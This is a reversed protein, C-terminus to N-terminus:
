PKVQESPNQNMKLCVSAEPAPAEDRLTMVEAKALSGRRRRLAKARPGARGQVLRHDTAGRRLRAPKDPQEGDAGSSRRLDTHAAAAEEIPLKAM